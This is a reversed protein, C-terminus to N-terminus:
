RIAILLFRRNAHLRHVDLGLDKELMMSEGHAPLNGPLKGTPPKREPKRPKYLLYTAAVVVLAVVVVAALAGDNGRVMTDAM